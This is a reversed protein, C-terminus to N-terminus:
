SVEIVFGLLSFAAAIVAVIAASEYVTPAAVDRGLIVMVQDNPELGDVVVQYSGPHPVDFYRVRWRQVFTGGVKRNSAWRSEIYTRQTTDWLLYRWKRLFHVGQLVEQYLAYVGAADLEFPPANRTDFLPTVYSAKRLKAGQVFLVVAATGFIAFLALAVVAEVM